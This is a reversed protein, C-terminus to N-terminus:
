PRLTRRLPPQPIKSSGACYGPRRHISLIGRDTRILTVEGSVPVEGGDINIPEDLNFRREAGIPSKMLQAVNVDM